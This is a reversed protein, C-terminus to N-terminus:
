SKRVDFTLTPQPLDKTGCRLCRWDSKARVYRGDASRTMKWKWGGRHGLVCCPAEGIMRRTRARYDM